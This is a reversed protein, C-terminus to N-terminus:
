EPLTIGREQAQYKLFYIFEDRNDASVKVGFGQNWLGQDVKGNYVADMMMDSVAPIFHSTEYYNHENLTIDSFSSFNWYDVEGALEYLFDIYGNEIDRQYTKFYLPNTMIRLNIDYEACIQKLERIDAMVADTRLEYYDAWYGVENEDHFSSPVTLRESGSRRFRETYDGDEPVYDKVERYAEWTTLIDCYKVYFDFWSSITDDPYPIRYLMQDHISPDVFCSIDDMMVTVNKPVFGHKILIKLLRVHEYPVAESSCLNYYKGDPLAEVDTFGARSSGFLLSDFEDKHNLLYRTKIFNKNAEIGNNRPYEYHFINYPDITTNIVIFFGLVIVAFIGFKLVFKGFGNNKM